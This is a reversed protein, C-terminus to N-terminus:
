WRGHKAGCFFYGEEVVDEDIMKKYPGHLIQAFPKDQDTIKKASIKLKRSDFWYIEGVFPDPEVPKKLVFFLETTIRTGGISKTYRRKTKIGWFVRKKPKKQKIVITDKHAFLGELNLTSDREFFKNNDQSFVPKAAITIMFVIVSVLGTKFFHRFM